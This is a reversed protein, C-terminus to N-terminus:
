VISSESINLTHILWEMAERGSKANASTTSVTLGELYSSLCVGKVIIIAEQTLLTKEPDQSHPKYLLRDDVSVMNTFSISASRLEMTKDIPVVVSHKQVYTKTRAAGILSKVTSPLGRETGLLRQSHFDVGVLSSTMPKLYKQVTVTSVTEWPHNSIRESTRIKM